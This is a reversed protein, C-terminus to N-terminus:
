PAPMCQTVSTRMATAPLTCALLVSMTVALPLVRGLYWHSTSRGSRVSLPSTTVRRSLFTSKSSLADCLRTLIPLSAVSDCTSSRTFAVVPCADSGSGVTSVMGSSLMPTRTTGRALALM